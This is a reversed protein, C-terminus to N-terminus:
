DSRIESNMICGITCREGTHRKKADDHNGQQTRKARDGQQTRKVGTKPLPKAFEHVGPAPGPTAPPPGNPEAGIEILIIIAFCCLSLTMIEIPALLSLSMSRFLSRLM